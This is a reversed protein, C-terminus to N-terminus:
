KDYFDRFSKNSKSTDVALHIALAFYADWLLNNKHAYVLPYQVTKTKNRDLKFQLVNYETNTEGSRVEVSVDKKWQGAGECSRAVLHYILKNFAFFAIGRENGSWLCFIALAEIEKDQFYLNNFSITLKFTLNYRILKQNILM